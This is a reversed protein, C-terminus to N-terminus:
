RPAVPLYGAEALSRVITGASGARGAVFAAAARGTREREGPDLVLRELMAAIEERTRVVALIGCGAMEEADRSREIRPGCLVPIGYAAPELVSHVGAGFGGGVYALSGVRYLASLIGTRDVIIV